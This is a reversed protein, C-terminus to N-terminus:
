GVLLQQLAPVSAADPVFLLHCHVPSGEIRFESESLLAVDSAQAQSVLAFELLALAFDRHFQPPSPLLEHAGDVRPSMRALANLYACGVINATELAASRELDGWEASVGVERGLLLDALALGSADDWVMILQGSLWGDIAMLCASVPLDSEGLVAAADALQAQDIKAVTIEAARGVWRSLTASASAAAAGLHTALIRLQQQTLM